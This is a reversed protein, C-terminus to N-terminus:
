RRGSYTRVPEPVLHPALPILVASWQLCAQLDDQDQGEPLLQYRAWHVAVLVGAAEIAHPAPRYRPAQRLGEELDRALRSITADLVSEPDGSDMAARLRESLEKTLRYINEHDSPKPGSVIKRWTCGFHDVLIM